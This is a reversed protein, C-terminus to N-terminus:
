FRPAMNAIANMTTRSLAKAQKRPIQLEDRIRRALYGPTWGHRWAADCLARLQHRQGPALEDTRLRRVQQHQTSDMAPPVPKPAEAGFAVHIVSM